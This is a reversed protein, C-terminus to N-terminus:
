KTVATAWVTLDTQTQGQKDTWDAAALNGSVHIWGKSYDGEEIRCLPSKDNPNAIRAMVSCRLGQGYTDPHGKDAKSSLKCSLRVFDGKVTQEFCWLLLDRVENAPAPRDSDQQKKSTNSWAM